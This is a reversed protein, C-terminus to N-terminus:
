GLGNPCLEKDKSFVCFKCKPGPNPLHTKNIYSGDQNFCDKIFKELQELSKKIKWDGQSPAFQQIRKQPFDSEEYLKRKLIFFEVKIKDKPFNFQQSFFEKYFLVQAQKVNDSKQWKGWSNTSTKIDYIFVSETKEDYLALDIFGKFIVSTYASYPVIHIPIECGLLHWGRKGFYKSINKKLFTLINVGDEFFENLQEPTSFHQKNNKELDKLYQNKLINYFEERLNLQNAKNKNEGYFLSLYQQIIEHIATGFTLHISYDKKHKQKYILDWKLPCDSYLQFQSFSISNEGENYNVEQLPLTLYQHVQNVIQPLKKM